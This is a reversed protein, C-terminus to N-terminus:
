YPFFLYYNHLYTRKKENSLESVVTPIILCDDRRTKENYCQIPNIIVPKM